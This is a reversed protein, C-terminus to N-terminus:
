ILHRVSAHPSPAPALPHPPHPPRPPLLSPSAGLFVTSCKGGGGGEGILIGLHFSTHSLIKKCLLFLNVLYRGLVHISQVGLQHLNSCRRKGPLGYLIHVKANTKRFLTLFQEGREQPITFPEQKLKSADSHQKKSNLVFMQLWFRINGDCSAV